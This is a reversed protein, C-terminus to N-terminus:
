AWKLMREVAAEVADTDDTKIAKSTPAWLADVIDVIPANWDIGQATLAETAATKTLATRSTTM